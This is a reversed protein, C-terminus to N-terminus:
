LRRLLNLGHTDTGCTSFLNYARSLERVQQMQRWSPKWPNPNGYAYYTEVGDIGIKVALPILELASRRYRAPHALVALGGAKHIAAVVRAANNDRPQFGQVYHEMSQHYPNFAYGLIHVDTGFLNSTVEIGTWLQPLYEQYHKELWHQAIEYGQISHHDTIALGKLGIEVAQAILKEPKLQGDSCLTHMHFNYHYPCSEASITKWVRQLTMSDQATSPATNVSM